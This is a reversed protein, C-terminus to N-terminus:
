NIEQTGNPPVASNSHEKQSYQIIVPVLVSNTILVQQM